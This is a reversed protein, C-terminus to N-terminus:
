SPWIPPNGRSRTTLPEDLGQVVGQLGLTKLYGLTQEYAKM